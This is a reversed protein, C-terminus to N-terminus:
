SKHPVTQGMLQRMEEESKLVRDTAVALGWVRLRVLVLDGAAAGDGKDTVLLDALLGQPGYSIVEQATVAQTHHPM